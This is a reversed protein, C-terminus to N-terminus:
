LRQMTLGGDITIVQGTAYPLDGRVLMAAARGIDEPQGMRKQVCLGADIMAQYKEMVGATMDTAIIGPRIEFVDISHEALRAAWLKGAMAVGAKSICYEGRTLSAVTASISSVNIITGRFDCAAQRQRIMWRAAAQTLFFPGTLNTTVVREFSERTTEMVDLRQRPAVGANNVLVDLRGFRSEVQELLPGHGDSDAVDCVAYHVTAGLDGLERLTDAVDTPQRRGCLFLDLGERALARAIGLGIGRTGGTILAVRTPSM